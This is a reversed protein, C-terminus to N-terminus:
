SLAIFEEMVILGDIETIEGDMAEIGCGDVMVGRLAVEHGVEIYTRVAEAVRGWSLVKYREDTAKCKVVFKVGDAEGVEHIGKDVFGILTVTSM